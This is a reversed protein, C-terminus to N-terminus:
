QKAFGYGGTSPFLFTLIHTKRLKANTSTAPDPQLSRKTETSPQGEADMDPSSIYPGTSEVITAPPRPDQAILFNLEKARTFIAPAKAHTSLLTAVATQKVSRNNFTGMTGYFSINYGTHGKSDLHLLYSADVECYMCDSPPYAPNIFSTDSTKAPGLLTLDSDSNHTLNLGLLSTADRDLTVEYHKGVNTIVNDVNVPSNSFIFTDDVYVIIYTPRQLAISYANGFASMPYGEALFVTKYNLYFLRGSDLWIICKCHLIRTCPRSRVCLRHATGPHYHDSRSGSPTSRELMCVKHKNNGHSTAPHSRTAPFTRTPSYSTPLPVNAKTM